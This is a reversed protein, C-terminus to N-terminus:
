ANHWTYRRDHRLPFARAIVERMNARREQSLLLLMVGILLSAWTGVLVVYV